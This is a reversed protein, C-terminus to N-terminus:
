NGRKDAPDCQGFPRCRATNALQETCREWDTRVMQMVERATERVRELKECLERLKGAVEQLTAEIEQTWDKGTRNDSIRKALKRMTGLHGDLALRIKQLGNKIILDGSPLQHVAKPLLNHIERLTRVRSDVMLSLVSSLKGINHIHEELKQESFDKESCLEFSHANLRYQLHGANALLVRIVLGAAAAGACHTAAPHVCVSRRNSPEVCLAVMAAIQESQLSLDDRLFFVEEGVAKKASEPTEIRDPQEPAAGSEAIQKDVIALWQKAITCAPKNLLIAQLIPKQERPTLGTLGDVFAKYAVRPMQTSSFLGSPFGPPFISLFYDVSSYHEVLEDVLEHVPYKAM